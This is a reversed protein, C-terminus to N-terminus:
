EFRPLKDRKGLGYRCRSLFGVLLNKRCLFAKSCASFHCELRHCVPTVCLQGTGQFASQGYHCCGARVGGLGM